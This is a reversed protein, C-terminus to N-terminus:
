PSGPNLVADTDAGDVVARALDVLRQNTSRAHTRLRTFAQDM